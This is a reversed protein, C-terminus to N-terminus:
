PPGDFQLHMWLNKMTKGGQLANEYFIQRATFQENRELIAFYNWLAAKNPPM